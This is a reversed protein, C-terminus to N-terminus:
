DPLQAPKARSKMTEAREKETAAMEFYVMARIAYERANDIEAM